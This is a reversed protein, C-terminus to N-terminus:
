KNNSNSFIDAIIGYFAGIACAKAFAIWTIGDGIQGISLLIITGIVIITFVLMGAIRKKFFEM